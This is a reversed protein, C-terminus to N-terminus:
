IALIRKLQQLLGILNMIAIAQARCNLSNLWDIVLKGRTINSDASGQWMDGSNTFIYGTEPNNEQERKLYNSLYSIGVEMNDLNQEVSGHFDNLNYFSYNKTGTRLYDQSNDWLGDADISSSSFYSSSSESVIESSSSSENISVSSSQGTSCASLAVILLSSCIFISKTIKM